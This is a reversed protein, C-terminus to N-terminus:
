TTGGDNVDENERTLQYDSKLRYLEIYLLHSSHRLFHGLDQITCYGTAGVVRFLSAVGHRYRDAVGWMIWGAIGEKLGALM